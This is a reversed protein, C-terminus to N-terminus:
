RPNAKGYNIMYETLAQFGTMVDLTHYATIIPSGRWLAAFREQGTTPTSAHKAEVLATLGNRGIVLDPFDHGVQSTDAVSFGLQELERTIV